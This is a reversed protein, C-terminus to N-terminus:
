LAFLKYVYTLTMDLSYMDSTETAGYVEKNEKSGAAAASVFALDTHSCAM